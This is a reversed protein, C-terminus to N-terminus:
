QLLREIEGKLYGQNLWFSKKVVPPGYPQMQTDSSDRGHPRVHCCRNESSRVSTDARGSRVNNRMQEYCRGAEELDKEPMQWLCVDSLRFVGGDERYLVFLYMQTLYSFFDSEAFNRELLKFYDFAPFSVAEKPRGNSLLRITKTKIGAKEFEDIKSQEDVGLIRKTIRACLDKSKSVHFEAALENETRGFYPAFRTRLLTILTMKRESGFRPIRGMKGILSRRIATMYSAKFAWARPKAPVNSYPQSTRISSDKAKTCAELYLTDGGSIDEAHGSRVKGVVTEWDYKIQLFDERSLRWRVVTEIVYDVPSKDPEYLYFVLLIDKAKELLHSHEFDEKVVDEYNIMSIVLREKAVLEGRTNRRLPTAKLELGAGDFDVKPSNNPDINFYYQELASGFSGRRRHPDDIEDLGVAERLTKGTLQRAYELISNADTPNYGLAHMTIVGGRNSRGQLQKM